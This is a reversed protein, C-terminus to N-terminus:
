ANQAQGYRLMWYFLLAQVASTQFSHFTVAARVGALRPWFLSSTQFNLGSARVRSGGCVNTLFSHSVVAWYHRRPLSGQGPVFVHWSAFPLKFTERHRAENIARVFGQGRAIRIYLARQETIVFSYDNRVIGASLFIHNTLKEFYEFRCTVPKQKVTQTSWVNCSLSEVSM